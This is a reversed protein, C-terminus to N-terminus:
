IDENEDVVKMIWKAREENFIRYYAWEPAEKMRHLFNYCLKMLTARPMPDVQLLAYGSYQKIRKAPM